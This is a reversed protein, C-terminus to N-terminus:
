IVMMTSTASQYSGSTDEDISVGILENITEAYFKEWIPMDDPNKLYPEGQMLSGYLLVEWANVMFWNSTNTDSLDDSYNYTILEYTYSGDPYPRLYFLSDGQLLSFCKPIDKSTSGYPYRTIMEKYDVKELLRQKNDATVFFSKVTKYRTPLSISDSSSSLTGTTKGEMHKWNYLREVKHLSQNILKPVLSDIDTRILYDAIDSKLTTWDM